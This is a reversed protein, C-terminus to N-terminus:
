RARKGQFVITHSDDRSLSGIYDALSDRTVALLRSKIEEDSWVHGYGSLRDAAEDTFEGPDPVQMDFEGRITDTVFEFWDHSILEPSRLVEWFRDVVRQPDECNSQAELGWYGGDRSTSSAFSPSYALRSDERVIRHLPSGLDGATVLDELVSWFVSEDGMATQPPIPFLL